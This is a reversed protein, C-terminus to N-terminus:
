LMLMVDDADYEDLYWGEPLDHDEGYEELLDIIKSDDIGTAPANHQKYNKSVQARLIALDDEALQEKVYAIGKRYDESYDPLFDPPLDVKKPIDMYEAIIEMSSWFLQECYDDAMRSALREMTADDVESTDFGKAELDGRSVSTIPFSEKRTSEEENTEAIEAIYHDGSVTVRGDQMDDLLDDNEIRAGLEHLSDAMYWEDCTLQIKFRKAM